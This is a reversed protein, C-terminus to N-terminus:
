DDKTSRFLAELQQEASPREPQATGGFLEDLANRAVDAETGPPTYASPRLQFYDCFNARTKDRVEEAIPERCSRAVTTDYFECMRCVHLEKECGPCTELRRLPLLVQRLSTGCSYCVLGDM